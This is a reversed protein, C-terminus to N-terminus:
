SSPTKKSAVFNRVSNRAAVKMAAAFDIRDSPAPTSAAAASEDSSDAPTRQESQSILELLDTPAPREAATHLKTVRGDSIGLLLREGGFEIVTLTSKRSLRRTEVVTVAKETRARVRSPFTSKVWREVNEGYRTWLWFLVLVVALAGVPRVLLTLDSM